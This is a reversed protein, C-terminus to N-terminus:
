NCKLPRAIGDFVGIVFIAISIIGAVGWFGIGGKIKELEEKNLKKM